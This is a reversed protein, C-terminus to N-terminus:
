FDLGTFSVQWGLVCDTNEIRSKSIRTYGLTMLSGFVIFALSGEVSKKENYPLKNKGFRRGVIDAMGDGGAMVGVALFSTISQRWFCSTVFLITLCYFLPGTLLESKSGERSMSKVFSQDGLFGIGNAAIRLVNILPVSAAILQGGSTASGFRM